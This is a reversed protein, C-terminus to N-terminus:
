DQLMRIEKVPDTSLFAQNTATSFAEFGKRVNLTELMHDLNDRPMRHIDSSVTSILNLLRQAEQELTVQPALHLIILVFQHSLHVLLM